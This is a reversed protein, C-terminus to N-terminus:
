KKYKRDHWGWLIVLLIAVPIILWGMVDAIAKWINSPIGGVDRGPVSGFLGFAFTLMLFLFLLAIVLRLKFKDWVEQLYEGFDM